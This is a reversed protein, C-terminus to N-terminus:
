FIICWFTLFVFRIIIFYPVNFTLLYLIPHPPVYFDPNNQNWIDVDFTSSIKSNEIDLLFSLIKLLVMNWIGAIKKFIGFITMETKFKVYTAAVPRPQSASLWLRQSNSPKTSFASEISIETKFKWEWYHEEWECETKRNKNLVFELFEVILLIDM